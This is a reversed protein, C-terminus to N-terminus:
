TVRSSTRIAKTAAMPSFSIFPAIKKKLAVDPNTTEICENKPAVDKNELVGCDIEKRAREQPIPSPLM